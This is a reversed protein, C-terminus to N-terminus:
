LFALSFNDSKAIRISLDEATLTLLGALSMM